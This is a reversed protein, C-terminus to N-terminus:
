DAAPVRRSPPAPGTGPGPPGGPAPYSRRRRSPRQATRLAVAFRAILAVLCVAGLVVLEPRTGGLQGFRNVEFGDYVAWCQAAAALAGPATTLLAVGAAAAAAFVLGTVRTDGLTSAVVAAVVGVPLGLAGGAPGSIVAPQYWPRRGPDGPRRGHPVPRPVLM